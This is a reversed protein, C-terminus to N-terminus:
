QNEDLYKQAREPTVKMTSGSSTKIWTDKKGAVINKMTDIVNDASTPIANQETSGDPQAGAAPKANGGSGADSSGGDAGGGDGGDTSSADSKPLQSYEWQKAIYRQKQNPFDAKLAKNLEDPSLKKIYDKAEDIKQDVTPGTSQKINVPLGKAMRDATIEDKKQLAQMRKTRAEYYPAMTDAMQKRLDATEQHIAANEAAIQLRAERDLGRQEILAANQEKRADLEQYKFFLNNMKDQQANDLKLLDIQQQFAKYQAQRQQDMLPLLHDNVVSSLVGPDLNPNDTQIKELIASPSLPDTPTPSPQAAPATSQVGLAALTPNAFSTAQGTPATTVPQSQQGPAPPTLQPTQPTTGQLVDMTAKAWVKNAQNAKEAQDIQDKLLRAQSQRINQEALLQSGEFGYGLGQVLSALSM